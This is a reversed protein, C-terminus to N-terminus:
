QSVQTALREKALSDASFLTQGLVQSHKLSKLLSDQLVLQAYLAHTKLVALEALAETGSAERATVVRASSLDLCM